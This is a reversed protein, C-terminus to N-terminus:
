RCCPEVIAGSLGTAMNVPTSVFRGGTVPTSSIRKFESLPM